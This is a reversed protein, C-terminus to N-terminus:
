NQATKKPQLAKLVLDLSQPNRRMLAEIAARPLGLGATAGGALNGLDGSFQQQDPTAGALNAIGSAAEGGVIGGGLARLAVAPNAAIAEPMVPSLIVGAGSIVKHGGKAIDGKAVDLVGSGAKKLGQDAYFDLGKDLMNGLGRMAADGTDSVDGM